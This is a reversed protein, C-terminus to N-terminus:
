HNLLQDSMAPQWRWQCTETRSTFSGMPAMTCNKKGLSFFQFLGGFILGATVTLVQAFIEAVTEGIEMPMQRLNPTSVHRLFM